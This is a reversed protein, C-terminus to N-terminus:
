ENIVYQVRREQEERLIRGSVQLFQIRESLERPSRQILSRFRHNLKAETVPGNQARIYAEIENVDRSFDSESTAEVARILSDYWEEAYSLAVLVDTLTFTTEGRYLALLAACKWTTERGLRTIAPELAVYKEHGKARKDFEKHAQELRAVAEPTGWVDVRDPLTKAAHALDASLDFTVTPANKETNNESRTARYKEDSETPPAAWIWNVRALFGTAFMDTNILTLLKDPTAIMYLNFSTEASKGRFEKLSIKNSPPVNGMYYNSFDYELQRMYDKTQLASFFTAAEDQFIMSPKGDRTLLELLIGEPSSMAGLNYYGDGDKLFHDLVHKLFSVEASKGTGSLGLPIFWLNMGLNVGKSISARLGFAMSLATWAAPVAYARNSFGKSASAELYTDIFTRTNAVVETEDPTLFTGTGFSNHGTLLNDNQNSKQRSQADDYKEHREASELTPNERIPEPKARADLVRKHVFELGWERALDKTKPCNWLVSTVLLDDDTNDQLARLLIRFDEKTGAAGTLLADSVGAPVKTINYEPLSKYLDITDGYKAIGSALGEAFEYAWESEPRSHSGTRAYFLEEILALLEPVGSHREAGLRVAEYQREVVDGHSFDEGLSEFLARTRDMAARVILSPEGPELTDYWDKVTGEFAAASKVSSEDCLWEPAEAFVDRSTPITGNWVIYSNGARRDVGQIGRYNSSPGLNKDPAAYIYQSGGSGSISPYNFTDPLENWSLEFNEWGDVLIKGESDRKVDFDAVNLGSPGVWVGVEAKPYREFLDLAYFPDNTADYFGHGLKGCQGTCTDGKEHARPISPRKQSKYPNDPDVTVNVPFVYLGLEALAKAKVEIPATM